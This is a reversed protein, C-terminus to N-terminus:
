PNSHVPRDCKTGVVTSESLHSVGLSWENLLQDFCLCSPPHLDRPEKGLAWNAIQMGNTTLEPILIFEM